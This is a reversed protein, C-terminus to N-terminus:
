EQKSGRVAIKTGNIYIEDRVKLAELWEEVVRPPHNSFKRYVLSAPVTRQNGKSKIFQLVETTRAAFDSGVIQRRMQQFGDYWDEAIKIAKLVYPMTVKELGDHMALLAAARLIHMEMRQITPAYTKRESEETMLDFLVSDKWDGVRDFADDEFFIYDGEYKLADSRELMLMATNQAWTDHGTETLSDLTGQKNRLRESTLPIPPSIVWTFRQLFGSQFNAEDLQEATQEAIGYALLNFVTSARKEQATEKNTRLVQKVKGGYLNTLVDLADSMYKKGLVAKFFGQVEDRNILSVQGDREGLKKTLAEPSFDAGIDVKRGTFDEFIELVEEMLRVSTTKRSVTTDGLLILWLNLPEAGHELRIRAKNGYVCSLLTLALNRHYIPPADTRSSAWATYEDVFMPHEAVIAEEEETLFTFAEGEEVPAEPEENTVDEPVDGLFAAEARQVEVWLAGQPDSRPPRVAGSATVEGVRSPHYKNHIVDSMLVYVEPATYGWEFLNQETSWMYASMDTGPEPEDMFMSLKVPDMQQQLEIRSPLNDPLDKNEINYQNVPVDGYVDLLDQQTYVAGEFKIVEVPHTNDSDKAHTTGPVRMVKTMIWSSQDCGDEKHAVSIKHSLTSADEASIPSTLFWFAQYHGPSSRVVVSPEIRANELDWEDADIYIVSAMGAHEKRRLQRDFSSVSFYVDQHKNNEVTRLLADRQSPWKFWQGSKVGHFSIYVHGEIDAYALDFFDETSLM